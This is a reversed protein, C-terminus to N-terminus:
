GLRSIGVLLGGSRGCSPRYLLGCGNGADLSLCDLLYSGHFRDAWLSKGFTLLRQGYFIHGNICLKGRRERHPAQISEDIRRTDKHPYTLIFIKLRLLAKTSTEASASMPALRTGVLAAVNLTGFVANGAQATWFPM